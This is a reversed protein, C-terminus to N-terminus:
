SANEAGRDSPPADRLAALLADFLDEIWDAAVPVLQEVACPQGVLSRADVWRHERDSPHSAQVAEEFAGRRLFALVRARRFLAGPGSPAEGSLAMRLGEYHRRVSEALDADDLAEAVVNRPRLGFLDLSPSKGVMVTDETSFDIDGTAEAIESPWPELTDGESLNVQQGCVFRLLPGYRGVTSTVLDLRRERDGAHGSHVTVALVGLPPDVRGSPWRGLARRVHGVLLAAQTWRASDRPSYAIQNLAAEREGASLSGEALGAVVDLDLGDTPEFDPAVGDWPAMLEPGLDAQQFLELMGERDLPKHRHHGWGSAVLDMAVRSALLAGLTCRRPAPEAEAMTRVQGELARETASLDELVTDRQDVLRRAALIQALRRLSAESDADM